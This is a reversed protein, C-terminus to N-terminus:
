PGDSFRRELQFLGSSAKTLDLPAKTANRFYVIADGPDKLALLLDGLKFCLGASPYGRNLAQLYANICNKFDVKKYYYAATKEWYISELFPDTQALPYSSQLSQFIAPWQVPCQSYWLLNTQQMLEHAQNWRDIMGQNEATIPIVCLAYGGDNIDLGQGLWGWQSQPFRKEIYPRYNVNIFLAAWRAQHPDILPNRAANFPYTMVSLTTNNPCDYDFDTFILGPGLQQNTASLIQYAKFCQISRGDRIYAPHQEYDSFPYALQYFDLGASTLLLVGFLAMRRPPSFFSLFSFLGVAAMLVLLPMVQVIRISEINMTLLGPLLFLLFVWFLWKFFTERANPLIELVGLFFFSSLLPNLFGWLTPCYAADKEFTGWFLSTLYHEVVPIQHRWPFWGSWAAVSSAHWGYGETIAAIIFPVLALALFGGFWYLIKINKTPTFVSKYFVIATVVFAVVPWSTFTLSGLGTVFGLAAAEKGPKKSLDTKLFRGLFCFCACEWLPLWDGPTCLRGLSLPWYGCGLLGGFVFSLSKSFFQRAAFYGALVTLSSVFASPFWLSTFPSCGVKLLVASAWISLPPLQGWTYFFRWNWHQSLQIAMTGFSGEDGTPWLYLSDLKYFRLFVFFYPDKM